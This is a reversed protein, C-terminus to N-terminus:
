SRARFDSGSSTRSPKWQSSRLERTRARQREDRRFPSSTSSGRAKHLEIPLVPFTKPLNPPLPPSSAAAFLDAQISLLVVCFSEGLSPSRSRGLRNPRLSQFPPAYAAPCASSSCGRRSSLPRTRSGANKSACLRVRDAGSRVEKWPGTSSVQKGLRLTGRWKEWRAREHEGAQSGAGARM